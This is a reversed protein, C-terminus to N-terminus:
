NYFSFCKQLFHKGKMKKKKKDRIQIWSGAEPVSDVFAKFGSGIRIWDPDPDVIRAQLDDVGRIQENNM